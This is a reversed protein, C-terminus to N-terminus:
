QIEEFIWDPIVLDIKFSTALHYVKSAAHVVDEDELGYEAKWLEAAKLFYECALNYEQKFEYCKAIEILFSGKPSYEYGIELQEIAENYFAGDKLAYGLDFRIDAV